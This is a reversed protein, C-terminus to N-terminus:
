DARALAARRRLEATTQGNGDPRWGPAAFLYGLAERLSRASRLDAVLTKWPYLNVTVPNNSTIPTTWGYKPRVDDREAVYTGFLHDFVMLVGGYNADLYEVNSAHHVRHNSPTNIIRDLWGLKPMWDAHLWFQYLGNLAIAAIVVDPRYGLLVMPAIFFGLAGLRETWGLRYAVGFNLQNPSHHISHAAWFWRVEHGARHYCYYLFDVGVILLLVSWVSDLGLTFLRHNYLLAMVPTILIAPVYHILRHGALDAMSCAWAKWDYGEQRALSQSVGEVISAAVVVITAGTLVEALMNM